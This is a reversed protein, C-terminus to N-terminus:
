STPSSYTTPPLRAIPSRRAPRAASTVVYGELELVRRVLDRVLGEDEVLLVREGGGGSRAGGVRSPRDETAASTVAPLYIRFTTGAGVESELEVLGGSQAVIGYM